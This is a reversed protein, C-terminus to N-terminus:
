GNTRETLKPSNPTIDQMNLIHDAKIVITMLDQKRILRGEIESQLRSIEVDLAEVEKEAARKQRLVYADFEASERIYPRGTDPMEAVSPVSHTEFEETTVATKTLKRATM